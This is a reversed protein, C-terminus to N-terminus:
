LARHGPEFDSPHRERWSGSRAGPWARWRRSWKPLLRTTLKSLGPIKSRRCPSPKRASFGHLRLSQPGNRNKRGTTSDIPARGNGCFSAPRRILGQRVADFQEMTVAGEARAAGRRTGDMPGHHDRGGCLLRQECHHRAYTEGGTMAKITLM